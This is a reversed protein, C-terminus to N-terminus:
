PPSVDLLWYYAGDGMGAAYAIRAELVWRGVAPAAFRIPGGDSPGEGTALPRPAEGQADTETAVSVVWGAVAGRDLTIELGLGPTLPIAELGAAPIWPADSGSEGYVYGGLVGAV